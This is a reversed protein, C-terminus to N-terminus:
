GFVTGSTDANLARRRSFAGLDVVHGTHPMTVTIPEADHDVGAQVGDVLARMLTGVLPANKFQNGSTGMAVFFGDEATRDYIPTWDTAVDYVGTIGRVRHPVALDPLRRAARLVQADFRERSPLPDSADPDDIWDLPDCEPETGGVLVHGGSDPRLYIGIDADALVPPHDGLGQPTPVQHVEQRMPAVAVTFDDGIGALENVRSSWPGAANVVVPAVLRRGDDLTVQWDDGARGIATVTRRFSFTAGHHAAAEALNAAALRPDDVFGADPTFIAGLREHPDDFFADSTVPKPPWFRGADLGRLHRELDDPGWVEYPIGARDFLEAQLRAPLIDVDLFVMGCRRFTALGDAPRVGLHDEWEDWRFRSEWAAAVGDWTPYNFRVIASSASTSGHGPGAAKDVVHVSRGSRALELATSAGVVGAGVVIVDTTTTSM